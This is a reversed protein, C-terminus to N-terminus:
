NAYRKVLVDAIKHHAMGDGFLEQYPGSPEFNRVLDAIRDPDPGTLVKWGAQSIEPFWSLEILVVCPKQLLYAERRVGGSDTLIKNAGATVRLFDVYGLPQTLQIKSKEIMEMAGFTKLTKLTRPHAPFIIRQDAKILGSIIAMLRSRNALNEERHLTLLHYDGRTPKIDFKRLTMLLADKMLDGSFEIREPEYGERQLNRVDTRTCCFIVDALVDSVRRNIEEPNYRDVSRIGGEVHAFPIRTKSAAIAASMTSNVDGYALVCSPKETEFVRALEIIAKAAFTTGNSNGVQLHYDPAPLDFCEFFAQSMAYDYHQGTHILVERVKRERLEANILYEKVFNPRTGIVSCIKM